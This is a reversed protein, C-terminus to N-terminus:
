STIGEINGAELRGIGVGRVDFYAVPTFTVMLVVHGTVAVREDGLVSMLDRGTM